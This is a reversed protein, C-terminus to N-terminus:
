LGIWSFWQVLLPEKGFSLQKESGLFAQIFYSKTTLSMYAPMHSHRFVIM